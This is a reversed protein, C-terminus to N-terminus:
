KYFDADEAALFADRVHRPMEEIRVLTRRNRERFFEACVKGDACTVKTVQPPQYTRLAEVSPLGRSYYAYAGLGALVALVVGALGLLVLRKTWRWLRAGLGPPAPPPTAPSQPTPADPQPTMPSAPNM